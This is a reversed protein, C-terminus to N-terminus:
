THVWQGGLTCDSNFSGGGFFSNGGTGVPCCPGVCYLRVTGPMVRRANPSFSPGQPDERRREWPVRCLVWGQARLLRRAGEVYTLRM